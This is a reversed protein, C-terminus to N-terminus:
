LLMWHESRGEGHQAMSRISNMMTVELLHRAREAHGVKRTSFHLRRALPPVKAVPGNATGDPRFAVCESAILSIPAFPCNCHQRWLAKERQGDTAARVAAVAWQGRAGNDLAQDPISAPSSSSLFFCEKEQRCWGGSHRSICDFESPRNDDHLM